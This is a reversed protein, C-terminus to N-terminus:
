TLAWLYFYFNLEMMFKYILWLWNRTKTNWHWKDPHPSSLSKNKVSQLELTLLSHPRDETESGGKEACNTLNMAGQPSPDTQYPTWSGGPGPPGHPSTSATMMPVLCGALTLFTHPSLLVKHFSTWPGFGYIWLAPPQGLAALKSTLQPNSWLLCVKEALYLM